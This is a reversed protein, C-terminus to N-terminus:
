RSGHIVLGFVVTKELICWRRFPLVTFRCDTVTLIWQNFQDYFDAFLPVASNTVWSSLLSIWSPFFGKANMCGNKEGKKDLYWLCFTVDTLGFDNLVPPLPREREGQQGRRWVPCSERGRPLNSEDSSLRLLLEVRRKHEQHLCVYNFCLFVNQKDTRCDLPALLLLVCRTFDQFSRFAVMAGMRQCPPTFSTDLLVDSVSAVHVMGYHNLNSSFSM